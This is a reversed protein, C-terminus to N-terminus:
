MLKPVHDCSRNMPFYPFMNESYNWINLLMLITEFTKMIYIMMCSTLISCQSARLSKMKLGVDLMPLWVSTVSSAIVHSNCPFIVASDTKFCCLHKNQKDQCRTKSVSIFSLIHNWVYLHANESGFIFWHWRHKALGLWNFLLITLWRCQDLM